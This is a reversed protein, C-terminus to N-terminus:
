RCPTLASAQYGDALVVTAFASVCGRSVRLLQSHALEVRGEHVSVPKGDALRIVGVIERGAVHNFHAAPTMRAWAAMCRPSYRLEIEGIVVTYEAYPRGAAPLQEVRTIEASARTVADAECGSVSPNADDRPVLRHVTAAGTHPAGPKAIATALISGGVAMATVAALAGLGALARRCWEALTLSAAPAPVTMTEATVAQPKGSLEPCAPSGADPRLQRSDGAFRRWPGAAPELPMEPRGM